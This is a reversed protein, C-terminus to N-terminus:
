KGRSKQTGIELCNWPGTPPLLSLPSPLHRFSLSLFSGRQDSSRHDNRQLLYREANPRPETTTLTRCFLIFLVWSEPWLVVLLGRSFWITSPLHDLHLLTSFLARLTGCGPISRLLLFFCVVSVCLLTFPDWLYWVFYFFGTEFAERSDSAM